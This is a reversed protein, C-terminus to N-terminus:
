SNFLTELSEPNEIGKLILHVIAADRYNLMELLAAENREGNLIAQIAQALNKDWENPQILFLKFNDTLENHLVASIADIIILEHTRMSPSHLYSNLCFQRCEKAKENQQLIQAIEGLVNHISRIESSFEDLTECIPLYKEILLLAENLRSPQKELLKALNVLCDALYKPNGDRQIKIAKRYWQEAAESKGQAEMVLALNNWSVAAGLLNNHEEKIKASKRYAEEADKWLKARDYVTGLQNWIIGETEPESLLEFLELADKYRQEAEELDSQLMALGGLEANVLVEQRIDGIDKAIDLSQEYYKKAQSFDEKDTFIIALHTLLVGTHQQIIESKELRQSLSLGEQFYRIADERKGQEGCCRGLLELALCRDYSPTNGLYHLIEQFNNEAQEYQGSDILMEGHNKRALYWQRLDKEPSIMAQTMKIMKTRDRQLGSENLFNNLNDVFEIAFADNLQLAAFVAHLLNPLEHLAIARAIHPNKRDQFSLSCSLRYYSRQYRTTLEKQQKEQKTSIFKQWLFPTLTPHFKLYPFAVDLHNLYDVQILGISELTSRLVAWKTEAIETIDNIIGEWVGCQFVGLCQILEREEPQLRDLSLELSALLSKSENDEPACLLLAELRDGLEEITRTKLQQALLSISLPHFAVKSFLVILEYRDPYPQEPLPLAQWLQNFYALADQEALGILDVYKNKLIGEAYDANTFRHQRTTFLFHCQVSWQLAVTLLEDLTEAALSELNDWVWLLRRTQLLPLVANEDLLSTDLLVGLANMAYRLADAGQYRSFDVFCVVDFLDTQLLWHAVEIALYTKGQGGFGTITIREVGQVFWREIQWLDGSRGFFGASQLDPLNHFLPVKEIKPANNQLLVDNQGTSYLAPVFWDQLTLKSEFEEFEGRRKIGRQNQIAMQQRASDLAAGIGEGTAIQQYFSTFLQRTTQVLVSYVMALVTPVGKNTLGAAVSGLAENGVMASQCASLVVLTINHPVLKKSLLSASVEYKISVKPDDIVKSDETPSSEFLLYGLKDEENYYGHGDFHIIDVSPLNKDELRETLKKLTAPRLFEVEIQSIDNEALASMVAKADSRPDLFNEDRPRSVIFLLRLKPKAQITFTPQKKEVCYRRISTRPQQQFLFTSQPEYLLEWPLALIEPVDSNITLLRDTHQEQFRNFFDKASKEIFVANFLNEGLTILKAEIRKAQEDDPEGTYQAAYVEIYWRLDELDKKTIPLKFALTESEENEFKVIVQNQSLFRLSLETISM